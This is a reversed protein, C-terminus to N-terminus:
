AARRAHPDRPQDGGEPGPELKSYDGLFGSYNKVEMKQAACGVALFMGIVAVSLLKFLNKMARGKMKRQKTLM